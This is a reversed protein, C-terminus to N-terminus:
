STPLFLHITTGKESSEVEISGENIRMFENVLVLGLGSGRERKTGLTSKKEQLTFLNKIKENDMGVGNDKIILHLKDKNELTRFEIKGNPQTFKIANSLVNRLVSFLMNYDAYAQSEPQIFLKFHIGKSAISERFVQHVEESIKQIDIQEMVCRIGDQQSLSWNLLNDLLQNVNGAADTIKTGLEVLKEQEGKSSYYQFLDAVERLATVPSRLDHGIIAFLRDKTHNLRELEETRLKVREELKEFVISNQISLAIQESLTMLFDEDSQQFFLINQSESSLVAVLEDNAILPLVVQSEANPISPLGSDKPSLGEEKQLVAAYRRYQSLRAVRLKKKKKAVVGIVGFNFPIEVGIGSHDFGRSALVQLTTNNNAPVLLMTHKLKFNTDLIELITNLKNELSSLKNLEHSVIRLLQNKRKEEQLEITYKESSKEM